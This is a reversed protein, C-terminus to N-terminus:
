NSIIIIYIDGWNLFVLNFVGLKFFIIYIFLIINDICFSSVVIQKFLLYTTNANAINIGSYGLHVVVHYYIVNLYMSTTLFFFFILFIYLM